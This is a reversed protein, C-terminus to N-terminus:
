ASRMQLSAVSHTNKPGALFQFGGFWPITVVDKSAWDSRRRLDYDLFNALLNHNLIEIDTGSYVHVEIGNEEDPRVTAFYTM